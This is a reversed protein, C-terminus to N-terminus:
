KKEYSIVEETYNKSLCNPCSKLRELENKTADVNRGYQASGRDGCMFCCSAAQMGTGIESLRSTTKRLILENEREVLSHWEKGCNKCIRRYEQIGSKHEVPVPFTKTKDSPSENVSQFCIPCYPFNPDKLNAGCSPCNNIPKIAKSKVIDTTSLNTGCKDCFFAQDNVESNGCKPCKKTM